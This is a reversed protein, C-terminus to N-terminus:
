RGKDSAPSLIVSAVKDRGKKFTKFVFTKRNGSPEINIIKLYMIYNDHVLARDVKFLINYARNNAPYLGITALLLIAIALIIKKM